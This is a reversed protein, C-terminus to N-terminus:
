VGFQTLHHNAHRYLLGGWQERSLDGFAPHPQFAFGNRGADATKHVYDCLRAVDSNFNDPQTVLYYEPITPMKGKPWPAWFIIAHRAFRNTLFGQRVTVKREHLPVMCADILHCVMRPATLTGWRGPRNATLRKIRSITEQELAPEFITRMHLIEDLDKWCFKRLRGLADYLLSVAAIGAM